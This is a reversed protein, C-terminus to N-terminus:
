MKANKGNLSVTNLPTISDYCFSDYPTHVKIEEYRSNEFVFDFSNPCSKLTTNKTNHTTHKTNNSIKKKNSSIISNSDNSNKHEDNQMNENKNENKNNSNSDSNVDCNDQFTIRSDNSTMNKEPLEVGRIQSRNRNPTSVTHTNHTSNQKSNHTNNQPTCTSKKQINQNSATIANRNIPPLVASTHSFIGNYSNYLFRSKLKSISTSNSLNFINSTSEREREQKLKTRESRESSLYINQNQHYIDDHTNHTNSLVSFSHFQKRARIQSSKISIKRNINLVEGGDGYFERQVEVDAGRYKVDDYYNNGDRKQNNERSKRANTNDSNNGLYLNEMAIEISRSNVGKKREHSKRITENKENKEFAEQRAIFINIKERKNLEKEYDINRLMFQIESHDVLNKPNLHLYDDGKSSNISNYSNNSNTTNNSNLNNSYNENHNSPLRNKTPLRLKRETLKPSSQGSSHESDTTSTLSYSSQSFQPLCPGYSISRSKENKEHGENKEKKENNDCSIIEVEKENENENENENYKGSIEDLASSAYKTSNKKFNIMKGISPFQPTLSPKSITDINNKFFPPFSISTEKENKDKRVRNRRRMDKREDKPLQSQQQKLLENEEKRLTNSMSRALRIKTVRVQNQITLLISSSSILM